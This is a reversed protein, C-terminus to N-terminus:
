KGPGRGLTKWRGRKRPSVLLPGWWRAKARGEILGEQLFPPSGTGWAQPGGQIAEGLYILSSQLRRLFGSGPNIRLSDGM